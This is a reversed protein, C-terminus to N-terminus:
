GFDGARMRDGSPALVASHCLRPEGLLNADIAAIERLDLSPPAGARRLREGLDSAGEATKDLIQKRLHLHPSIFM